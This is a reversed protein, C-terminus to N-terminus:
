SRDTRRGWECCSRRAPRPRKWPRTKTSISVRAAAQGARRTRRAQRSDPRLREADCAPQRDGRRGSREPIRGSVRPGRVRAPAASLAPRVDGGRARHRHRRRLTRLARLARRQARQAGHGRRADRDRFSGTHPQGALSGGDRRRHGPQERHCRLPPHRRRTSLVHLGGEAGGSRGVGEERVRRVPRAIAARGAGRRRPGSESDSTGAATAARPPPAVPPPATAPPVPSPRHTQRWWFVGGAAVLLM